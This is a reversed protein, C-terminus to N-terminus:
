LLELINWWKHRKKDAIIENVFEKQLKLKFNKYYIRRTPETAPIPTPETAVQKTLERTPIKDLKKKFFLRSKFNNLDKERM